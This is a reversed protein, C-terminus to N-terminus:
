LWSSILLFASWYGAHSLRVDAIMERQADQLAKARSTEPDALNQYFDVILRATAEDNVPWLSGLASRAGAKIAVGALGLAARDDGAATDCASLTLLELPQDRFRSLSVYRGLRDMSLKGDWALVYSESADSRFEGHSAIHVISFPTEEMEEGMAEVRFSEDLMLKGGVTKKVARLEEPVHPLAPFGAVPASLGALLPRLAARDLPRPDTLKWGPTTAVAFREILHREGDHLAAMPITRLAGDPVFILTDVGLAEIQDAYPRVVWDYVQRAPGLYQRTTRKELLLRLERVAAVLTAEDVPVPFRTLGAPAPLTVLLELRDPLIIPYVVAETSAVADLPRVKAELADVCDDRFYDRLEAAKLLEVTDRADVLAARAAADDAAADASRLLLDVYEFYVPQVSERFSLGAGDESGVLAPRLAELEQVALRYAAAAESDRGEAALIRGTQWHWRYLSEAARAEQALFLARRTLDLAAELEEQGEHIEGLYGLAWAQTRADGAAAAEQAADSLDAHAAPLVAAARDPARAALMMGTRGLHVRIFAREGSAPLDAIRKRAAGLLDSARALAGGEVAARAANATARALLDADGAAAAASAAEEYRGLAEGHRGEESLAGAQENLTAAAALVPDADVPLPGFVEGWLVVGVPIMLLRARL